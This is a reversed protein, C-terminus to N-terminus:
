TQGLLLLSPHKMVCVRKTIHLVSGKSRVAWRLGGVDRLSAVLMMM